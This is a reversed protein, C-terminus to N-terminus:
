GGMTSPASPGTVVRNGKKTKFVKYKDAYYQHNRQGTVSFATALFYKGPKEKLIVLYNGTEYWIHWKKVPHGVSNSLEVEWWTWLSPHFAQQILPKLWPLRKARKPDLLREGKDKRTVVHWFGEPMSSGICRNDFVVPLAKFYPKTDLFDRRFVPFLIESFVSQDLIDGLELKEPLILDAM